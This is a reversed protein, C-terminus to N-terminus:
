VPDHQALRAKHPMIERQVYLAAGLNALGLGILLKPESIGVLKSQLLATVITGAVMFISNWINIAAMIRARKEPPAEAQVAAFLPVVYFGGAAALGAVDAAIRLGAASSFFTSLSTAGSPAPVLAWTALGIDVLFFAMGLAALPAPTLLIRGRTVLAAGLSGAGVGIAFLASIAAEVEIGGGTANRVAVPVLSLAVAGTLWFWSLAFGSQQLFPTRSLDKILAGTSAFVNPEIRLDPAAVKTPPILWSTAFCAFAIGMMQCVVKLQPVTSKAALAGAILGFLIALFTAAEILANGAVLEDRKLQDPLIGSKIPSFLASVVGLGFLATYLLALSFFWFGVAAIAQVLIEAAKLARIVRAKDNADAIEGGLSSLVISPLVFVGIALTILTGSQAGGLRFLLLMALINRVFNDNFASLFQCWFLPAFRRTKLLALFM